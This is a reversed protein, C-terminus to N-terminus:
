KSWEAVECTEYDPMYDGFDEVKPQEKLLPYKVLKQPPSLTKPPPRTKRDRWLGNSKLIDRATAESDIFGVVKMDTRNYELFSLQKLQSNEL